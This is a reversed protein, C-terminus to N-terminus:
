TGRVPTRARFGMLYGDVFVGDRVAGSKRGVQGGVSLV